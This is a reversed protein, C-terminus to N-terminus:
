MVKKKKKEQSAGVVSKIKKVFRSKHIRPELLIHSESLKGTKLLCSNSECSYKNYKAIIINIVMLTEENKITKVGLTIGKIM